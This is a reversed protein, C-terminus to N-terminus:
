GKYRGPRLLSFLVFIFSRQTRGGFYTPRVPSDLVWCCYSPSPTQKESDIETQERLTVDNSASFKLHKKLSIIFIKKSFKNMLDIIAEKPVRQNVPVMRVQKELSKVFLKHYNKM